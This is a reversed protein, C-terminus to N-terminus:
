FPVLDPEEDWVDPDQLVVGRMEQVLSLLATTHSVRNYHRSLKSRTNELKKLRHELAMEALRLQDAVVQLETDM